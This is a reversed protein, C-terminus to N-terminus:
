ILRKMRPKRRRKEGGLELGHCRFKNYGLVILLGLVHFPLLYGSSMLPNLYLLRGIVPPSVQSSTIWGRQEELLLHSQVLQLLMGFKVYTTPFCADDDKPVALHTPFARTGYCGWTWTWPFPCRPGPDRVDSSLTVPLRRVGTLETGM